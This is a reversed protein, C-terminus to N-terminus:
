KNHLAFDFLDTHALYEARRHSTNQLQDVNVEHPQEGYAKHQRHGHRVIEDALPQLIECEMGGNVYESVRHTEQQDKNNYRHRDAIM